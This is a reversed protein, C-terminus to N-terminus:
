FFFCRAYIKLNIVLKFVIILIKTPLQFTSDLHFVTILQQSRLLFPSLPQQPLHLLRPSVQTRFSWLDRCIERWQLQPNNIMLPSVQLGSFGYGTRQPLCSMSDCLAPFRELQLPEHCVLMQCIYLSATRRQRRWPEYFSSFSFSPSSLSQPYLKCALIELSHTVKYQKALCVRLM